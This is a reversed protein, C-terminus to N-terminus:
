IGLDFPQYGLEEPSLSVLYHSTMTAETVVRDGKRVSISEGGDAVVLSGLARYALRLVTEEHWGDGDQWCRRCYRDVHMRVCIHNGQGTALGFSGDEWLPMAQAGCLPDEFEGPDTPLVLDPPLEVDLALCGDDITLQSGSSGAVTDMTFCRKQGAQNKVLRKGRRKKWPPRRVQVGEDELPPVYLSQREHEVPPVDREDEEEDAVGPYWPSLEDDDPEPAEPEAEEVVEAEPIVEEDCETDCEVEGEALGAEEEVEVPVGPAAAAEVADPEGWTGDGGKLEESMRGGM